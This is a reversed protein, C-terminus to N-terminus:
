GRRLYYYVALTVAIPGLFASYLLLKVWPALQTVDDRADPSRSHLNSSPTGGAAVVDLETAAITKDLDALEMETAAITKDLDALRARAERDETAETAPEENKHRAEENDGAQEPKTAAAVQTPAEASLNTDPAIDKEGKEKSPPGGVSATSLRPEPKENGRTRRATSQMPRGASFNRSISSPDIRTWEGLGAAEDKKIQEEILKSIKAEDCELLLVTKMAGDVAMYSYTQTIVVPRALYFRVDDTVKSLDLGQLLLFVPKHDSPGAYVLLGGSATKQVATFRWRSIGWDGVQFDRPFRKRGEGVTGVTITKISPALSTVRAQTWTESAGFLDIGLQTEKKYEADSAKRKERLDDMFQHARPSNAEIAEIPQAYCSAALVAWATTTRLIEKM